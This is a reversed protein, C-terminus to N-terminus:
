SPGGQHKRAPRKSRSQVGHGLGWVSALWRAYEADGKGAADKFNHYDIGSALALAVSAWVGTPVVIRCAYDRNPTDLIEAFQLTGFAEMLNELHKRVRARIAVQSKDVTLKGKLPSGDMPRNNLCVISFFGHTTFLWM